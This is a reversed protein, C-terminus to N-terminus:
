ARPPEAPPVLAPKPPFADDGSALDADTVLASVVFDPSLLVGAAHGLCGHCASTAHGAEPASGDDTAASISAIGYGDVQAHSTPAVVFAAIMAIALALAM